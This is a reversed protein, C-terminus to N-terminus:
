LKQELVEAHLGMKECEEIIKYKEQYNFAYFIAGDCSIKIEM